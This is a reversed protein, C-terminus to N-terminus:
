DLADSLIRRLAVADDGIEADLVQLIAAELRRSRDRYRIAIAALLELSAAMGSLLDDEPTM